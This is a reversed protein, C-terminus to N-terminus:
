VSNHITALEAGDCCIPFFYIRAPLSATTALCSWQQYSLSFSLSFPFFLWPYLFWIWFANQQNKQTASDVHSLKTIKKASDVIVKLVILWGAACFFIKNEEQLGLIQRLKLPCSLNSTVHNM